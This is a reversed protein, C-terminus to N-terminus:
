FFFFLVVKSSPVCSCSSGLFERSFSRSKPEIPMITAFHDVLGALLGKQNVAEKRTISQRPLIEDSLRACLERSLGHLAFLLAVSCNSELAFNQVLDM